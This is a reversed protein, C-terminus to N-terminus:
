KIAYIWEKLIPNIMQSELDEGAGLGDPLCDGWWYTSNATIKQASEAGSLGFSCWFSTNGFSYDRKKV